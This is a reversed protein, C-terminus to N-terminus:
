PRIQSRSFGGDPQRPGGFQLPGGAIGAGPLPTRFPPPASEPAQTPTRTNTSTATTTTTATTPAPPPRPAAQRLRLWHFFGMGEM